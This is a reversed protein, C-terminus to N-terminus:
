RIGNRKEPHGLEERLLKGAQKKKYGRHFLEMILAAADDRHVFACPTCDWVRGDKGATWEGTGVRNDCPYFPCYCFLCNLHAQGEPLAHCPYYACDKYAQHTMSFANQKRFHDLVSASLPEKKM